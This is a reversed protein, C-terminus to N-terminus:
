TAHSIGDLWDKVAKGTAAFDPHAREIQDLSKPELERVVWEPDAKGDTKGLCAELDTKWILSRDNPTKLDDLKQRTTQTTKKVSGDPERDEDTIACWPIGLKKAMEAYAPIAGVDGTRIISISRSDLDTGAKELNLRVAFVDDKGECLVAMQAFLMEHGGREDLREQFMAHPGADTTRLEGKGVGDPRRWLRVVMQPSAFSIMEPAHTATVVIWGSAALRELVGRFKRSLHPHLHTEPEEVLLAVRQRVLEPYQSVVELTAMRMLSQWGDGMKELPTTAGGADTAFSMLLQQALWEDLPQVNPRLDVRPATGIYQALTQQLKPRLDDKWFPFQGAADSFFRHAKVMTDPMPRKEGAKEFVWEESLFRKALMQSLRQLPGTRWKFLADRLNQPTLLWVEPLHDRIDNPRAYRPRWGIGHERFTEKADGKLPPSPSITIPVEDEGILVNHHEMGGDTKVKGFARLGHVPLPKSVGQVVPLHKPDDATLYLTISFESAQTGSSDHFFDFKEPSFKHFGGGVLAFALAELVTSKGSNNGGILHLPMGEPLDIDLKRVGRFNRISLRSFRFEVPM